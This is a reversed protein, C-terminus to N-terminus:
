GVVSKPSSLFSEMTRQRKKAPESGDVRVRALRELDGPKVGRRGIVSTPRLKPCGGAGPRDRWGLCWLLGGYSPPAGGDLAYTDNLRVLLDLAAQLRTAPTAEQGNLVAGHWAPIAKGWAMRVNNHLEGSLVLCKQCDDWYADGSAGRALAEVDPAPDTARLQNRAWAPVARSADLYAGPNRLCWLHASERFGCFESVFKESVRAGDRAMRLPDIMGCNVYASMCVDLPDNRRKAYGALGDNAVWAEWRAVAARPGGRTRAVRGVSTDRRSPAALVEDVAAEGSLDLHWTPPPPPAASARAPALPTAALRARRADRTARLFGANGGVLAQAPLTRSPVTCACDCLWTPAGTRRVKDAFSMHPEVGFHEDVIVLRARAALSQAAAQRSGDREVHVLLVSGRAAIEPQLERLAELRFATARDTPRMGIRSLGAPFSDELVALCLLPVRLENAARLATELSPNAASRYATRMCYLVHAGADRPAPLTAGHQPRLREQLSAPLFQAAM